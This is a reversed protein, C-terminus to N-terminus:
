KKTWKQAETYISDLDSIIGALDPYRQLIADPGETTLHKQLSDLEPLLKQKSLTHLMNRDKEAQRLFGNATNIKLGAALDRAQKLTVPIM